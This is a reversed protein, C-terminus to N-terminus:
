EHENTQATYTSLLTHTNHTLLSYYLYSYLSLYEVTRVVSFVVSLVRTKYLYSHETSCQDTTSCTAFYPRDNTLQGSEYLTSEALAASIICLKSLFSLTRQAALVLPLGAFSNSCFSVSAGRVRVYIRVSARFLESVGM